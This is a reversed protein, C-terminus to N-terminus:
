CTAAEDYDALTEAFGRPARGRRRGSTVVRVGATSRRQSATSMLRNWLDHDEATELGRWGGARLYADARVGMNAGHVHPHSGDPHIVYNDCFRRDTGTTYEEFSDVSITGAIADIGQDAIRLQDLLWTNPVCCDADTNALWCRQLPGAYRQLAVRAALARAYGVVAAKTPIVIGSGYLIREALEFTLDTSSDCTVVVDSTISPPLLCRAASVSNLCRQILREENRAPILVAVHWSLQIIQM